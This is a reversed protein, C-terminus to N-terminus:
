TLRKQQHPDLYDRLGDSFFNIGLVTIMLLVPRQTRRRRTAEERDDLRDVAV